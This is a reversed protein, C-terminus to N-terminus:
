NRIKWILQWVASYDNRILQQCDAPLASFPIRKGLHCKRGMAPAFGNKNTDMASTWCGFGQPHYPDASMARASRCGNSETTRKNRTFVVTFRDATEGGNDYCRIWRPVGGPM